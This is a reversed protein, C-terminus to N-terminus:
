SFSYSMGEKRLVELSVQNTPCEGLAFHSCDLSYAMGHVGHADYRMREMWKANSPPMTCFYKTHIEDYSLLGRVFHHLCLWSTSEGM